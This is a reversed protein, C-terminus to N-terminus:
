QRGRELRGLAKCADRDGDCHRATDAQARAQILLLEQQCLSNLTTPSCTRPDSDGKRQASLQAFAVAGVISRVCVYQQREHATEVLLCVVKLKSLPLAPHTCLQV